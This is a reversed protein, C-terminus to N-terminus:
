QKNDYYCNEMSLIIISTYQIRPNGLYGGFEIFIFHFLIIRISRIINPFLRFICYSM